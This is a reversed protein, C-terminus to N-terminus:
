VVQEKAAADNGSVFVHHDGNATQQPYIMVHATATNLTKVVKAQPFAREIREGLLDTNSVAM